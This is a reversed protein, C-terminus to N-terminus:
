AQKLHQRLNALAKGHIQSVRSISIELIESMEQVGLEEVYYFQLIQQERINLKEIAQKLEEYQDFKELKVVANVSQKDELTEQLTLKSEEGDYIVEDLSTFSLYHLTQFIQNLEKLEIGMYDCLENDNPERLLQQALEEKSKYYMKVRSMKDRSVVGVKRLEDIISGKIRMRAYTEFSANKKHDYRKIADILGLIGLSILDDHGIISSEKINMQKVIKTVLPIYKEVDITQYNVVLAESKM